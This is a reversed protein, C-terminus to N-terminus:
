IGGKWKMYRDDKFHSVLVGCADSEDYSRFVDSGLGYYSCVGARVADKDGRGSGSVLRKLTTVHMCGLPIDNSESLLALIGLHRGYDDAWKKHVGMAVEEYCLFSVGYEDILRDLFEYLGSWSARKYRGSLIYRSHTGLCWGLHKGTDIGLYIDTDM